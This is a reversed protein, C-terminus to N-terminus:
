GKYVKWQDLCQQLLVELNTTPVRKISEIFSSLQDVTMFTKSSPFLDDYESKRASGKNKFPVGAKEMTSELNPDNWIPIFHEKLWHDKLLEKSKYKAATDASCDDLDM